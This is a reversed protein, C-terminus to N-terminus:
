LTQGQNGPYPLLSFGPTYPYRGVAPVPSLASLTFNASFLNTSIRGNNTKHGVIEKMFFKNTFVGVLPCNRNQNKKKKAQVNKTLSLLFLFNLSLRGKGAPLGSREGSKKPIQGSMGGSSQLSEVSDEAM